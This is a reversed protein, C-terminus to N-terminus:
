LLCSILKVVQVAEKVDHVRVISAGKLLAITHLSTTGNLAEEPTIRLTKWIMSKRSLGVLIPKGLIKFHNLNQLLAFNQERTKAFGFGPDIIVDRIGAQELVYLKRHFHDIIDKILDTYFTQHAMTQPDGRMHMVMYPVKLTAVTEIMAGDLDGGSIDNVILAGAEVAAKAVDSRFTDITIVANSFEKGILGIAHTVRNLEDKVSVEYAGPHTSYGGVDIFNAGEKLMIEAQQLIAQDTTYRDGDYFSDPTVNLIGM